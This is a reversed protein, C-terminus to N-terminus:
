TNYQIHIYMCTSYDLIGGVHIAETVNWSIMVCQIQNINEYGNAIFVSRTLDHIRILPRKIYEDLSLVTLTHIALSYDVGRWRKSRMM